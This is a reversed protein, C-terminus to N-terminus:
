EDGTVFPADAAPRRPSFQIALYVGSEPEPYALHPVALLASGLRVAPLTRLVAAPLPSVRRFRVADNGLPGLTAGPPVRADAGIRFRDDWVCGARAPIAPAMAAAERVALLGPGLRGAPLLRVGGLTTPRPAAALAAISRTGPPFSTGAITQLLRALAAPALARGSLMAFGEPRFAVCEALGDATQREQAARLRGSAASAAVLASIASGTGERDCRLSRLRPRLAAADANSPDEVWGTSRAALVARLRAPPVALLPRLLRLRTTEVLPAMGAMGALGSGGLARILM